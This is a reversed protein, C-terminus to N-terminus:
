SRDQIVDLDTFAMPGDLLAAQRQGFETTEPLDSNVMASEYSDFFAIVLHRTPDNRDRTIISRRLTRKGETAKEWEDELTSLEEFRSTRIEIIQIFEMALEEPEP